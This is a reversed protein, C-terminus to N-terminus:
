LRPPNANLYSWCAFGSLAKWSKVSVADASRSKTPSKGHFSSKHRNVPPVGRVIKKESKVGWGKWLPSDPGNTMKVTFVVLCFRKLKRFLKFTWIKGRWRTTFKAVLSLPTTTHRCKLSLMKQLHTWCYIWLLCLNFVSFYFLIPASVWGSLVLKQREKRKSGNWYRTQSYWKTTKKEM